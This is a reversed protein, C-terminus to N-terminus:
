WRYKDPHEAWEFFDDLKCLTWRKEHPNYFPIFPTTISTQPPVNYFDISGGIESFSNPFIITYELSDENDWYKTSYAILTDSM